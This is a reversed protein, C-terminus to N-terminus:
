CNNVYVRSYYVSPYKCFHTRCKFCIMHNCGMTKQCPASCTPCTATHLAIYKATAEEEANLEAQKRPFCHALEGHWGKKCVVCFAYSCDECVALRDAIPPLEGTESTPDYTFKPANDEEGTDSVDGDDGIRDASKPHKTSRAAGQCWNRPCYAQSRDSELKKKRKLMVYRQVIDQELPIQLLESPNLTRDQKKKPRRPPQEEPIEGQPVTSTEKGCGPALCKVNDVDGETICSNLFDQLCAVCFVHSCLLLRHCASGKKVDLCVGCEFTSREFAERKARSDFDLLSIKLDRSFKMNEKELNPIDFLTEASQQLYDVFDFVVPNRGLEEWLTKGHEVLRKTHTGSLWPPNTSIQFGPPKESPYGEPLDIQLLLPPLYSLSHIDSETNPRPRKEPENEAGDKQVGAETSDPPTPLVTPPASETVLQEFLVQLPTIPIVPLELSASFPSSHPTKLEPFIAAIASLEIAREDDSSPSEDDEM